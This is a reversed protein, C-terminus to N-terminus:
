ESEDGTWIIQKLFNESEQRMRKLNKNVAKYDIEDVESIRTGFLVRNEIGAIKLISELRSFRKELKIVWFQKELILSFAVAHFSNTVIYDAYKVLGLFETPSVCPYLRDVHYHNNIRNIQVIKLHYQEALSRAALICDKNIEAEYLLIYHHIQPKRLIAEYHKKPLLFVPDLVQKVEKLGASLLARKLGEERVSVGHYDWTRKKLSTIYNKSFVDKGASAAYSAKKASTNFHLFFGDAWGVIEDNWVQDSGVLYLDPQVLKEIDSSNRCVPTLKVYKNTFARYKIKRWMKLPFLMICKLLIIMSKNQIFNAWISQYRSMIPPIYCVTMAVHGKLQLYKQLAYEQLVAGVNTTNCFTVIYIKM